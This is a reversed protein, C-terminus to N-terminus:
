DAAPRGSTEAGLRQVLREFRPEDHLHALDSDSQMFRLDCYGLEVSRELADLAEDGRQLMALSCALNYHVTPDHPFLCVLRQDIRLGEEIRGQRTYVHGLEILAETQEPRSAVAAELFQALFDLGLAEVRGRLDPTLDISPSDV